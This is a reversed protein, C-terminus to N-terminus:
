GQGWTAKNIKPPTLHASPFGMHTSVMARVEHMTPNPFKIFELRHFYTSVIARVEHVKPNPFKIFELRHFHTSAIARVEHM